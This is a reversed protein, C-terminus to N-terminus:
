GVQEIWCNSPGRARAVVFVHAARRHVFHCLPKGDRNRLLPEIVRGRTEHQTPNTMQWLNTFAHVSVAPSELGDIEIPAADILNKGAADSASPARRGDLPVPRKMAPYSLGTVRGAAAIATPFRITCVTGFM